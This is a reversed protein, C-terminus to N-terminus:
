GSPATVAGYYGGELEAMTQEFDHSNPDYVGVYASAPSKFSFTADVIGNRSCVAKHEVDSEGTMNAIYLGGAVAAAVLATGAAFNWARRLKSPENSAYYNKKSM